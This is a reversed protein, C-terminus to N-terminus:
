DAQPDAGHEGPSATTDPEARDEPGAVRQVIAGFLSLGDRGNMEIRVTDGSQLYRTSAQGSAIVELARKEAICSYGRSADATSVTGSGVICGARLNRTKALHAILEGFHFHMEAGSDIAGVRKGNWTSQLLLQVRGGVWAPGLEDPTVAVPSFATAPKSHLLGLGRALEDAVLHRLTWDNALMLLRVGDLAQTPSAGMAVDDTVVAIKAEFDIGWAQSGFWADQCPGLFDDSAGQVMLPVERASAPLTEGRAQRLLRLHNLYASGDAWQTARPLPAM